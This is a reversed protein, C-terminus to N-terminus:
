FTLPHLPIVETSVLGAAALPLHAAVETGEALDSVDLMLVAGPRGPSWAQTLTGSEQLRRLAASEGAILQGLLEQDGDPVPRCIALVMMPAEREPALKRQAGSIATHGAQRNKHPFQLPLPMGRGFM